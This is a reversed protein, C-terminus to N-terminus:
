VCGISVKKYTLSATCINDDLIKILHLDEGAKVGLLPAIGDEIVVFNEVHM